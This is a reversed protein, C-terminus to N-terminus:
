TKEALFKGNYCLIGVIESEHGKRNNWVNARTFNGSGIRNIRIWKREEYALEEISDGFVTLSNCFPENPDQHYDPNGYALLITRYNADREGIVNGQLMSLSEKERGKGRM